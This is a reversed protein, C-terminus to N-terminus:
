TIMYSHLTYNKKQRRPPTSTALLLRARALGKHRPAGPKEPQFFVFPNCQLHCPTYRELFPKGHDQGGGRGAVMRMGFKQFLHCDFFTTAM